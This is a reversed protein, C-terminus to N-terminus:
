LHRETVRLEDNMVLFTTVFSYIIDDHSVSWIGVSGRGPKDAKSHPKHRRELLYCINIVRGKHM